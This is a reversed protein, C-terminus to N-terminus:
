LAIWTIRECIRPIQPKGKQGQKRKGKGAKQGCGGAGRMAPLEEDAM